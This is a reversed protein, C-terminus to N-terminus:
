KRKPKAKAKAKAPAKAKPRMGGMDERMDEASMEYRMMAGKMPMKGPKKMM